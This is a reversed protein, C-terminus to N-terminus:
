REGRQGEQRKRYWAVAQAVTDRRCEEATVRRVPALAPVRNTMGVVGHYVLGFWKESDGRTGKRIVVALRECEECIPIYGRHAGDEGSTKLLFWYIGSADQMFASRQAQASPQRDFQLHLADALFAYATAIQRVRAQMLSKLLDLDDNRGLLFGESKLEPTKFYWHALWRPLSGIRSEQIKVCLNCEDTGLTYSWGSATQVWKGTEM